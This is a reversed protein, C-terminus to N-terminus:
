EDCPVQEGGGSGLHLTLCRTPVHVTWMSGTHSPMACSFGKGAAGSAASYVGDDEGPRTSSFDAM